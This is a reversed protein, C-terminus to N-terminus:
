PGSAAGGAGPAVTVAVPSLVSITSPLSETM